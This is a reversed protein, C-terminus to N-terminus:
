GEVLADRIAEVGLVDVGSGIGYAGADPVGPSMVLRTRTYDPNNANAINNSAVALALQNANMAKIASNLATGLLMTLGGCFGAAIRGAGTFCRQRHLWRRRTRIATHHIDPKAPT